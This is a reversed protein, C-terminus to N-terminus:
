ASAGDLRESPALTDPVYSRRIERARTEIPLGLNMAVLELTSAFTTLSLARAGILDTASAAESYSVSGDNRQEFLGALFSPSGAHVQWSMPRYALTYAERAAPENITELQQVTTPMLSSGKAWPLGADLAQKRTERVTARREELEDDNIPVGGWRGSHLRNHEEIMALANREGEAQWLETHLKPNTALFRILINIEVMPRLLARAASPVASGQLEIFGHFLTRGRQGLVVVALKFEERDVPDDLAAALDLLESEDAQLKSLVESSM